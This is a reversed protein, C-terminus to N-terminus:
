ALRSIKEGIRLTGFGFSVIGRLGILCTVLEAARNKAILVDGVAPRLFNGGEHLFERGVFKDDVAGVADVPGVEDDSFDVDEGVVEVREVQGIARRCRRRRLRLGHRGRRRIRSSPYCETAM